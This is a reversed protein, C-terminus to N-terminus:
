IFTPIQPWTDSPASHIGKTAQVEWGPHAAMPTLGVLGEAETRRGDEWVSAQGYKSASLSTSPFSGAGGLSAQVLIADGQASLWELRLCTAISGNRGVHNLPTTHVAPKKQRHIPQIM